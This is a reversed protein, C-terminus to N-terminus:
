PQQQLQFDHVHMWGKDTLILPHADIQSGQIKNAVRPFAKSIAEGRAWDHVKDPSCKVNVNSVTFGTFSDSPETFGVVEDVKLTGACFGNEFSGSSFSGKESFFKKGKESMDFVKAPYNKTTKRFSVVGQVVTDKVTLIGAGALANLKEIGYRGTRKLAPFSQVGPDVIICHNAYYDNLVRKFNSKSADKPSGCGTVLFAVFLFSLITNLYTM